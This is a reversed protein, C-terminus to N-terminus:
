RTGIEVAMNRYTTGDWVPATVAYGGGIRPAGIAIPASVYRTGDWVQATVVVSRGIVPQVRAAGVAIPVSVYRTGDWVQGTVVVSQGIVPQAQPIAVPAAPRVLIGVILAVAVLLLAAIGLWLLKREHGSGVMVPRLHQQRM